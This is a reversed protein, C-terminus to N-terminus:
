STEITREDTVITNVRADFDLEPVEAILQFDYALACTWARTLRPLLRDYYGRGYGIRHGRPDVALAPVMAFEVAEPAIARADVPPEPVGFAGDVLEAGSAEFLVLGEEVVRPFAIMKGQDQAAAVIPATSVEKQISAFALVVNASAFRELAVVRRAIASSRRAVASKPLAGRLARMRKRLELKVQQRIRAEAPDTKAHTM